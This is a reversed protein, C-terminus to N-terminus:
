AKDETITALLARVARGARNGSNSPKSKPKSESDKARCESALHKGWKQHSTCYYYKVGNIEQPKSPDAPAGKTKLEEPFTSQFPKKKSDAKKNTQSKKKHKSDGYTKKHIKDIVQKHQRLEAKLAM